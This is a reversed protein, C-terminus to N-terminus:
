SNFLKEYKIMCYGLNTTGDYKNAPDYQKASASLAPYWTMDSSLRLSLAPLLVREFSIRAAIAPKSVNSQCPKAETAIGPPTIFQVYPHWM